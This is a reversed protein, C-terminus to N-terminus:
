ARIMLIDVDLTQDTGLDVFGSDISLVRFGREHLLPLLSYISSGGEYLEVLAMEIDLAVVSELSRVAGRLVEHEFGQTDIKLLTRGETGFSDLTRLPVPVRSVPESQPIAERLRSTAPLVSSTVSDRAVNFEVTGDAAGLAVNHAEWSDDGAASSVLQRYADPLPEFSVIRGRYGAARLSRAYQGTNAGVDLVQDVQLRSLLRARRGSGGESLRKLEWGRKLLTSKVLERASSM